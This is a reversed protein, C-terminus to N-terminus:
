RGGFMRRLRDWLSPPAVLDDVTLPGQERLERQAECLDCLLLVTSGNDIRHIDKEFKNCWQCRPVLTVEPAMRDHCPSPVAIARRPRHVALPAPAVRM